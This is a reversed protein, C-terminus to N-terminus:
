ESPKYYLVKLIAGGPTFTQTVVKEFFEDIVDPTFAYCTEIELYM